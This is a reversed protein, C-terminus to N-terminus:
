RKTTVREMFHITAELTENMSLVHAHLMPGLQHNWGSPLRGNAPPVIVGDLSSYIAGHAVRQLQPLRIQNISNLFESGPVMERVGPTHLLRSWETGQNPSAITLVGRVRRWGEYEQVYSRSVMGGMSFGVLMVEDQVSITQDITQKLDSALQRLSVTGDNPTLTIPLVRWGTFELRSTLQHFTRPSGFIGPVLVAWRQPEPGELKPAPTACSGFLCLLFVLLSFRIM